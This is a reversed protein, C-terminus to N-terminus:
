SFFLIKIKPLFIFKAPINKPPFIIKPTLKSNPPLKPDNQKKSVGLIKEQRKSMENGNYKVVV